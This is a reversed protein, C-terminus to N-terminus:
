VDLQRLLQGVEAAEQPTHMDPETVTEILPMGLRDTLYVRDHGIDSVERCADEEISLQRIRVTRDKFPIVGDVGLIGTRQFGTPISGDLYQKRAIHLEGVLNLRLLLCIELAIDLAEDDIFFPPTDDFEYTCVTDHHIRYYINKRTKKEMLATGDYEGLESLTPRMHRLIEADYEQSYRGAPCRCFLKRRTLLQQHVELGVKLGINLYDAETMQDFPKFSLAM